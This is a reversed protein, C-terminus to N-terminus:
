LNIFTGLNKRSQFTGSDGKELFEKRFKELMLSGFLIGVFKEIGGGGLGGGGGGCSEGLNLAVTEHRQARRGTWVLLFTKPALLHSELDDIKPNPTHTVGGAQSKIRLVRERVSVPPLRM